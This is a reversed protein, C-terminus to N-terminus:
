RAPAVASAVASQAARGHHIKMGGSYWAIDRSGCGRESGTTTTTTTTNTAHNNEDWGTRHLAAAAVCGNVEGDYLRTPDRQAPPDAARLALSHALTISLEELYNLTTHSDPPEISNDRLLDTPPLVHCYYFIPCILGALVMSMDCVRSM